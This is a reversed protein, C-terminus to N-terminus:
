SERSFTIFDHLTKKRFGVGSSTFPWHWFSALL